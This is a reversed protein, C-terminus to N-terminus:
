RHHINGNKTTVSGAVSGAIRIDGNKSEVGGAVVAGGVEVDGNSTKIDGANGEVTVDANDTSVNHVDGVVTINIQPSNAFEDLNMHQGDIVVDGNIISINRGSFSGFSKGNIVINPM